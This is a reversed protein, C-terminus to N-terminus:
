VFGTAPRDKKLIRIFLPYSLPCFVCSLLVLRTKSDLIPFLTPSLFKLLYYNREVFKTRIAPLMTQLLLILLAPVFFTFLIKQLKKDFTLALMM